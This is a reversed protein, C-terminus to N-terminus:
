RRCSCTAGLRADGRQIWGTGFPVEEGDVIVAGTGDIAVYTRPEIRAISTAEGVSHEVV